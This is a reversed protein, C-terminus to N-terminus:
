SVLLNPSPDSGRRCGHEALALFEGNWRIHRRRTRPGSSFHAQERRSRVLFHGLAQHTRQGGDAGGSSFQADLIRKEQYFLPAFFLLSQQSRSTVFHDRPLESPADTRHLMHSTQKADWITELNEIPGPGLRFHLHQ